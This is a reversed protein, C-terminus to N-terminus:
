LSDLTQSGTGDGRVHAGREQEDESNEGEPPSAPPLRSPNNKIFEVLRARRELERGQMARQRLQETDGKRTILLQEATFGLQEHLHRLASLGPHAKVRSAVIESEKSVIPEETVPGRALVDHMTLQQLLAIEAMASVALADTASTDGDAAQVYADIVILSPVGPLRLDLRHRLIEKAKVTKAYGGHRRFM